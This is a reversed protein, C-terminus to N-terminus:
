APNREPPPDPLREAHRAIYNRFEDSSMRQHRADYTAPDRNYWSGKAFIVFAGKLTRTLFRATKPLPQGLYQSRDWADYTVYHGPTLECVIEDIGDKTLVAGATGSPSIHEAELWFYNWPSGPGFSEFSLLRPKLIVWAGLKLAIFGAEAALTVQTLDMGGKGPLFVHNLSGTDAALRLVACIEDIGTWHARQPAGAPFLRSQISVWERLNRADFDKMTRVWSALRTGVDGIKPRLLPDNDTCESLLEDLPAAFIDPHFQRLSLGGVSSYQGDFALPQGSLAIWLTKAFSYVDAPAGDAAQADRRMEPAMTFKPGLTHKSPTVDARGPYKVLGFDSYCLRGRYQLINSPKIDRHHIGLAHLDALTRALPIFAAAIGVANQGALGNAGPEALPMVYWRPGADPGYHLDEDLLPVIGDVREAEAQKLAHIEATFRAFVTNSTKKLLKLARDEGGGGIPSVRWVYGNGGGGILERLM